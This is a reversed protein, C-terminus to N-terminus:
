AAFIRDMREAIDALRQREGGPIEATCWGTFGIEDMTEMVAPWNCDGELLEVKFGEWLGDANRRARSYEKIDLKGVRDGLIRAWQEPWGFNVLNGVDLYWGVRASETADVFQRAELPSLLFGNWVNELLIDVGLEEALPTAKMIEALSREWAEDYAVNKDVVAPVLLVSSAGWVKADRLATQLAAQGEARVAPDPHSLPKRWHVSDVVGHVALGTADQAALVEATSLDGPSDLEVGDFGLEVLLAFKQKVTLDSVTEDGQVMNLKVAKKLDRSGDERRRAPRQRAPRKSTSGAGPARASDAQSAASCGVAATTIAAAGLGALFARRDSSGSM